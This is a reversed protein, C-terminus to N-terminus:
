SISFVGNWGPAKCGLAGWYRGRVEIGDASSQRLASIGDDRVVHPLEEMHHFTWSKSTLVYGKTSPCDPDPMVTTKGASTHINIYEFGMDATGGGGEYEIRTSLDKALNNFNTHSLFCWDADGGTESIREAIKMISEYISSTPSDLRCGALRVPDSTRDVGYFATASPTTLPIWGALGKFPLTADDLPFLYDNNSFSGIKTADDVTVTGADWDVATVYPTGTNTRLSSGDENPGANLAMGKFFYKASDASELTITNSNISARRGIAGGGLGYLSISLSHGLQDLMNDVQDKLASVFAGENNASAYITEADIYVVGYDHSRTLTFVNRTGQAYSQAGQTQATSFTRSRGMPNATIIPIALDKGVFGDKKQVKSLFTRKRSALNFPRGPPYLKKMMADFATLDLSSM